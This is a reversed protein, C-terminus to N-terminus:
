DDHCHGADSWHLIDCLKVAVIYRWGHLASGGSGSYDKYWRKLRATVTYERPLELGIVSFLVVNVVVDQPVFWAALAYHLYKNHATHHIKMVIVFQVWLIFFSQVPHVALYELLDLYNM